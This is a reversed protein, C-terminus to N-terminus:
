LDFNEHVMMGVLSKEVLTQNMFPSGLWLIHWMPENNGVWEWLAKLQMSEVFNTMMELDKKHV